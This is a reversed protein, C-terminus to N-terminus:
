PLDGRGLLVDVIDTRQGISDGAQREIRDIVVPEIAGRVGAVFGVCPLPRQELALRAVDMAAPDRYVATHDSPGAPNVTITRADSRTTQDAPVIFDDTAGISTLDIQEPLKSSRLRKMFESTEALEATSKGSSPPLMGGGVKDAQDMLFRGTASERIRAGSTAAPAGQLPSSLTVVSGLPPLTPDSIKYYHALFDTVVVGGQSHAVLDVERGPNKRQLARLQDRLSKAEGHLESYTDEKTYAVGDRAYTFSTVEGERYGLAAADVNLAGGKAGQSSNIGAVTMVLHGSGGGSSPQKTDDTCTERSRAYSVLRQGMTWVDAVPKALVSRRWLWMAGDGLLQAGRSHLAGDVSDSLDGFASSIGGFLGGDDEEPAVLAHVDQPLYLSDALSRSEVAPPDFGQQASQRVPALRILKSLDTPAFLAMPDVYREGVRLGFHLVGAHEGVGGGATGLVAGRKVHDGRHVTITALFSSSTRLGGAHSVVVHLTGAVTGAFAVVGSNAARVPTGAAAVFDVGRHGAGYHSRPQVFPRTVAGSVPRLWAGPAPGDAAFAAPVFWFSALSLVLACALAVFLAKHSRLGM